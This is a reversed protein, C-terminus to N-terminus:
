HFTSSSKRLAFFPPTAGHPGEKWHVSADKRSCVKAVTMPRISTLKALTARREFFDARPIICSRAAISAVRKRVVVPFIPRLGVTMTAGSSVEACRLATFTNSSSLHNGAREEVVAVARGFASFVLAAHSVARVFHSPRALAGFLNGARSSRGIGSCCVEM